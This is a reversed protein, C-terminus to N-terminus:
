HSQLQGIEIELSAEPQGHVSTNCSFQAFPLENIILKIM